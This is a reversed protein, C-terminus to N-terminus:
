TAGGGPGAVRAGDASPSAGAPEGARVIATRYGIARQLMEEIAARRGAAKALV